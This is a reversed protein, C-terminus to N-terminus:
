VWLAITISPKLISRALELTKRKLTPSSNLPRAHTSSCPSLFFVTCFINYSSQPLSFYHSYQALTVSIFICTLQPEPQTNKIENYRMWYQPFQEREWLTPMSASGHLITDKKNTNKRWAETAPPISSIRVNKENVVFVSRKKRKTCTTLNM